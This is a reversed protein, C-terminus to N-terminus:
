VVLLVVKASQKSLKDINHEDTEEDSDIIETDGGTFFYYYYFCRFHIQIYM